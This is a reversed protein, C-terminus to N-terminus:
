PYHQNFHGALIVADFIDVIGDGNIDANPNWNKMGPTANFAASLKVADFIDVIGDGDIDGPIAVTVVGGTFNNNAVNTEGPVPWAYASITYNGYAFGITNWTFKVTTSNGAPLTVNESGIITTNAYATTNFTETYSGQNAVTVNISASFGQGVTPMPLCGNKSSAVNTIAVDHVSGFAYINGYSGVYVIGDAVAPSSEVFGTLYSWVLAGTSANLAYVNGDNSGVYVLGSAVAPSSYVNFGTTYSWIYAGTTANLAYIKHDASGVYVVGGAVAPSSYV